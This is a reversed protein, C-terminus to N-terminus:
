WDDDDDGFLGGGSMDVEEEEEEEEEEKKEEAAAGAAPAAGAAAPAAGAAAMTVLRESGAKILEQLDKGELDAFVKEIQEDQAEAGVAELVAKIDEAQIQNVYFYLGM